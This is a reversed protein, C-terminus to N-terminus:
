DALQTLSICDILAHAIILPWLRGTRVYAWAFVLGIPIIGVVSVPGQYLHYLVRVLVSANVAAIVGFRSRVCQILYGAVFLEEFFGNVISAALLTRFNFQSSALDVQAAQTAADPQVFSFVLWLALYGLYVMCLLVIASTIDTWRFRLGLAQVTWGRAVMLPVVLALAYAELTLLSGLHGSAIPGDPLTSLLAGVSSYVFPWVTFVVILGFELWNPMWQLWSVPERKVIENVNLNVNM